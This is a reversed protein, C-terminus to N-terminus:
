TEGPMAFFEAVRCRFEPLVDFGTLEEDAEVVVPTKDPRYVTVNRADPDILWVLPIGKRLFQTIRRMVRGIRDNPSLVEVALAPLRETFKPDLEEYRRIELYLAVDVGRVTDPDRELLLGMDNPCVYGKRLQRTFGWLIGTANGCVVCHREGPLSMEVIEGQELEFHRDRNEPRHCFEFFEEATMLKTAATAM